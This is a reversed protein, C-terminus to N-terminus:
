KISMTSVEFIINGAADRTIEEARINNKVFHEECVSTKEPLECRVLTSWIKREEQCKPTSFM